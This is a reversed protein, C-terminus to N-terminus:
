GDDPQNIWSQKKITARTMKHANCGLVPLATPWNYHSIRHLPAEGGIRRTELRKSLRSEKEWLHDEWTWDLQHLTHEEFNISVIGWSFVSWKNQLQAVLLASIQTLSCPCYHSSDLLCALLASLRDIYVNRTSWVWKLSFEHILSRNSLLNQSSTCKPLLPLFLNAVVRLFLSPWTM